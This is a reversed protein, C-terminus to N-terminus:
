GAKKNSFTGSNYASSGSGIVNGATTIWTSAVSNKTDAKTVAKQAEFNNANVGYGWAERMANYRITAADTEGFGVTQEQLELGTGSDPDIGNAALTARQAGVQTRTLMRRREEAEMGIRAAVDAKATENKANRDAIAITAQGAKKTADVTYMAGGVAIAASAVWFIAAPNCM